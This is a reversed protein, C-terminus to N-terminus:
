RDIDELSPHFPDREPQPTEVLRDVDREIDELMQFQEKLLEYFHYDSHERGAERLVDYDKTYLKVPEERSTEQNQGAGAIVVHVHPHETNSHYVAYWYLERGQAGELDHMIDRTWERWDNVHENEGPSLVVKHYNVSTSTHQMVDDVADRRNVVNLDKNFIRRDDRSELSGERSRHEIYKFHATLRTRAAERNGRVYGSGKAIM